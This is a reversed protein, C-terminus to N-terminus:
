GNYVPKHPLAAMPVPVKTKLRNCSNFIVLNKQFTGSVLHQFNGSTVPLVHINGTLIISPKRTHFTHSGSNPLETQIENTYVLHISYPASNTTAQHCTIMVQNVVFKAFSPSHWCIHKTSKLSQKGLPSVPPPFQDHPFIKISFFIISYIFLIISYFNSSSGSLNASRFPFFFSLKRQM